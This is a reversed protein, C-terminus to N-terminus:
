IKSKTGGDVAQRSAQATGMHPQGKKGNKFCFVIESASLVDIHDIREKFVAEDFESIGLVDATM